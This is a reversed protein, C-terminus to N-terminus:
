WGVSLFVAHLRARDDELRQAFQYQLSWPGLMAFDIGLAAGTAAHLTANRGEVAGAYFLELNLQSLFFAPLLGFTSATGWDVIFPYRYTADVIAVRDTAIAFDEYGRLAEFFSVGPPVIDASFDPGPPRDSHHYILGAPAGGVQLIPATDPAGALERGRLGLRLTHRRSLPLPLTLLLQGRLDAFSFGATGWQDPFVAAFLNANLLRRDGSYPTSEVGTFSAALQPGAFRRLPVPFAADNPDDSETLVFSLEVPNEYFLRAIGLDVDRQRKSLTFDAATPAPSGAPRVPVDRWSFQEAFAFLTFPALQENAYGAGVSGLLSSSVKQLYGFLLWRHFSLRDGGDLVAGYLVGDRGIAQLNIARLQPVFLHDVGSYPAESEIMPAQGIAPPLAAVVPLAAAPPATTAPPAPPLAAPPLAAPPLAAPPLAAPPLPVEDLTWRWGQRNL